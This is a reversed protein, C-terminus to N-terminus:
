VLSSIYVIYAFRMSGRGPTVCFNAKTDMADSVNMILGALHAVSDIFYPVTWTGGKETSLTVDACALM